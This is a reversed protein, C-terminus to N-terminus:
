GAAGPPLPEAPPSDAEWLLRTAFAWCGVALFAILQGGPRVPRYDVFLRRFGEALDGLGFAAGPAPGAREWVVPIVSFNLLALLLALGALSAIVRERSGGALAAWATFVLATVVVWELIGPPPLLLELLQAGALTGYAVAIWGLPGPPRLWVGRLLLLYTLLLAFLGETLGFARYEVVGQPRLTVGALAGAGLFLLTAAVARRSPTLPPTSAM